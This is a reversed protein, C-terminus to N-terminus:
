GPVAGERVPRGRGTLLAHQTFPRFPPMETPDVDVCVLAPSTTAHARDLAAGLEGATRVTTAALGPFLAAAGDGIRAPRFLNYSYDGSFFLQERTACMGHANNNLVVFTVPLDHEVATHVEMGHM